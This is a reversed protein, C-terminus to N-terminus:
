DKFENIFLEDVTTNLVSAIKFALVLRPGYKENELYNITTRSSGTLKALEIQSLNAAERYVKINNKM